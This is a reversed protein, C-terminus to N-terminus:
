ANRGNTRHNGHFRQTTTDDLTAQELRL